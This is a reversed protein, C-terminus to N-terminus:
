AAGRLRRMAWELLLAVASVLYLLWLPVRTHLPPGEGHAREGTSPGLRAVLDAVPAADGPWADRVDTHRESPVFAAAALLADWWTRHADASEDRGEMRWRWTERYGSVVVRGAGHRGGVVVAETGERELVVSSPGPVLHYAAIGLRPTDTLLAGAVPPREDDIRALRGGDLVARRVAPDRGADGAVIVGGGQELFQRLAGVDAVGSDLVVAVAYRGTDLPMPEGLRVRAKPTIALAGDVQWGKEELAAVVFKSEWGPQGYVRVRRVTDAPPVRVAATAVVVGGRMVDAQVPGTLATARVGLPADGGTSDLVGGADRLRFAAAPQQDITRVVGSVLTGGSPSVVPTADLSLDQVGISDRWRVSMGAARAAGLIGRVRATPMTHLDAVVVPWPDAAARSGDQVLRAALARTVAADDEALAAGIMLRDRAVVAGDPTLLRQVAVVLAAVLAIVGVGRAVREAVPTTAQPMLRAGM